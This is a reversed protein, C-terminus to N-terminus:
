VPRVKEKHNHKHKKKRHQNFKPMPFGFRQSLIEIGSQLASRTNAYSSFSLARSVPVWRVGRIKESKQPKAVADAPTEMLVLTIYKHILMGKHVYRDVFWIDLTPLTAMPLLDPLGMEECTERMATTVIDEGPEIHGKPFTWKYYPDQIFGVEIRSSQGPTSPMSRRFVIGGASHEIRVPRKSNKPPRTAM